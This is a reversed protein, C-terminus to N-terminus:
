IGCVKYAKCEADRIFRLVSSYSEPHVNVWGWIFPVNHVSAYAGLLENIAKSDPLSSGVGLLITKAGAEALYDLDALCDPLQQPNNSAGCSLIVVQDKLDARPYTTLLHFIARPAAGVVAGGRLHGAEKLGRAISDGIAIENGWTQCYAPACLGLIFALPYLWRM